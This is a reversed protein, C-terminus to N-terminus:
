AAAQWAVVAAAGGLVTAVANVTDNGLGAVGRAHTTVTGCSHVHRETARECASCWRHEQITAGLLSDILMGAVGGAVASGPPVGVAALVGATAVIAAGLVGAATGALTVGGSYGPPVTRRTVISRPPRQSLLGIETAWTDASAAALCGLALVAWIAGGTVVLLLMAVAFGGGNALVQGADRPGTKELVSGAKRSKAEHRFRSAATAATFFVLLVIAWRWGAAIAAAGIALAALAGSGTLSVARLVGAIPSSRQQLSNEPL